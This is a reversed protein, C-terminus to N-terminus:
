LVRSRHFSAKPFTIKIPHRFSPHIMVQEGKNLRAINMKTSEDLMSYYNHMSLESIGLKAITHLGTSQHLRQDTASKFQQASFLITGRSRGAILIKMIQETVPNPKVSSSAPMFRNIEDTCILIYKPQSRQVTDKQQKEQLNKSNDFKISKNNDEHYYYYNNSTSYMEEITKMIDGVVFAQEEVSSITALDIVFVDGSKIQKVENGLYVSTKKKDIFMPSKRFMQLYGLFHWLTSKHTLIEQPYGRFEYLDTWNKIQRESEDQKYYLPWSEYIYDIISSLNYHPDYADSLLLELRDYIDALEYSYTKSNAPRHLSNSEGDKGRPLFYTVNDFPKINLGL